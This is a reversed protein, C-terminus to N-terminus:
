KFYITTISTSSHMCPSLTFALMTADSASLPDKHAIDAVHLGHQEM